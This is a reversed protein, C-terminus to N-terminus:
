RRQPRRGLLGGILALGGALMAGSAPEPVPPVYANAAVAALFSVSGRAWDAGSITSVSMQALRTGSGIAILDEDGSTDLIGSFLSATAAANSDPGAAASLTAGIDFVVETHPSLTFLLTHSSQASATGSLTDLQMSTASYQVNFHGSGTATDYGASGFSNITATGTVAGELDYLTGDAYAYYSTLSISPAIGDDPALDVLRYRFNDLSVNATAEARAPAAGGAAVAALIAAAVTSKVNM